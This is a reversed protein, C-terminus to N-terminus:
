VKRWPVGGCAPPTFAAGIERDYANKTLDFSKLRVVVGNPEADQTASLVREMDNYLYLGPRTKFFERRVFKKTLPGVVVEERFALVSKGVKTPKKPLPAQAVAEITAGSKLWATFAAGAGTPNRIITGQLGDFDVGEWNTNTALIAMVQHSQDITIRGM